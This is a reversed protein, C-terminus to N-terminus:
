RGGAGSAQPVPTVVPGVSRVTQRLVEDRPGFAKPEGDAMVLLHDVTALSSPRHAILVVIGQRRRVGPRVALGKRAPPVNLMSTGPLSRAVSASLVTCALTVVVSAAPLLVVASSSWPRLAGACRQM